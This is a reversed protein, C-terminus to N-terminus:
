REHTHEEQNQCDARSYISSVTQKIQSDSYEALLILGCYKAHRSLEGSKTYPFFSIHYPTNYSGPTVQLRGVCGTAKVDVDYMNMEVLLSILKDRYKHGYELVHAKEQAILERLEM